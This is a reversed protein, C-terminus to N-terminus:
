EEFYSSILANNGGCYHCMLNQGLNGRVVLFVKGFKM